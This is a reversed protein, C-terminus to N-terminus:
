LTKVTEKVIIYSYPKIKRKLQDNSLIDKNSMATFNDSNANQFKRIVTEDFNKGKGM